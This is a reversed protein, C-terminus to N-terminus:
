ILFIYKVQCGAEVNAYMGPVAPVNKCSFSTEPVEHYIPYDKGAIGPIKSFDQGEVKKKKEKFVPAAKYIQHVPAEHYQQYHHQQYHHQPEAQYAPQHLNLERHYLHGNQDLNNILHEFNFSEDPVYILDLKKIENTKSKKYQDISDIKQNKFRM